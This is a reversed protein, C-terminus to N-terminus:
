PIKDLSHYEQGLVREVQLVHRQTHATLFLLVDGLQLRIWKSLSIPVRVGGLHVSRAQEILQLLREQQDIFEAIMARPDPQVQPIANAPSKMKTKLGGSATPLMLRYFYDGLWGSTFTTKASLGKDSATQIAKEIAPLYYRGYINLHELCQAASWSGPQPQKSFQEVPMNQWDKVAKELLVETTAYLQDLLKSTQYMM